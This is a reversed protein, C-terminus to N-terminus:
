YVSMNLFGTARKAIGSVQWGFEAGEGTQIETDRENRDRAKRNSISVHLSM